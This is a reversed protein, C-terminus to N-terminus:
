TEKLLSLFYKKQFPDKLSAAHQELQIDSIWGNRYGIEEPSCILVGQRQELTQVFNSAENLSEYTGADLWSFGRGLNVCGLQGAQLYMTNLDTIELEGRDSPKLNSAFETAREDYFYLGTIALDSKPLKPKEELSLVRGSADIEAIGYRHPDAVRYTFISAGVTQNSASLLIKQLNHGHFLNDGLILACQHGDLFQEGIILAQALGDPSEQIAYEINAGMGEGSGLLKQFSSLHEPSTILLIDRIGALMLCSLPYYILPKNYIPLLQKSVAATLPYLRSGAGGALVIGKRESM